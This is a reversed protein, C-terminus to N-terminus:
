LGKSDARAILVEKIAEEILGASIKVACENFGTRAAVESPISNEVKGIIYYWGDTSQFVSQCAAQDYCRFVRPTIDIVKMNM